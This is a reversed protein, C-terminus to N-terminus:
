NAPPTGNTDWYVFVGNNPKQTINSNTNVANASYFVSNMFTGPDPNINPELTTPYNTRRYFNYSDQGMGVSSFIFQEGLVNWKGETNANQFDNDVAALFATVNADSPEFSMDADPDVIGSNRVKDIHTAIATQLLTGAAGENGAAMAMEAQLFQM